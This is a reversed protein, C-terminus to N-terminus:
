EVECVPAALVIIARDAIEREVVLHGGIKKSTTNDVHCNYHYLTRMWMQKLYMLFYIYQYNSSTLTWPSNSKITDSSLKTCM